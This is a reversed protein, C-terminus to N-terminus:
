KKKPKSTTALNQQWLDLIQPLIEYISFTGFGDLWTDPNDPVHEPDAQRAMIYAVDEFMELDLVSLQVDQREAETADEPLDAMKGHLVRLRNLDRLLDRGFKHRYLRPTLATTRMPVTRGGVMVDKRM